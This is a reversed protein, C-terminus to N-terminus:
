QSKEKKRESGSAMFLHASFRFDDLSIDSCCSSIIQTKREFNTLKDAHSACDFIALQSSFRFARRLAWRVGYSWGETIILSGRLSLMENRDPSNVQSSNWQSLRNSPWHNDSWYSMQIYSFDRQSYHSAFRNIGVNIEVSRRGILFLRKISIGQANRWQWWLSM